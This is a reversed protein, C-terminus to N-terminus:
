VFLLLEYMKYIYEAFGVQMYMMCLSNFHNTKWISMTTRQHFSKGCQSETQSKIPSVM